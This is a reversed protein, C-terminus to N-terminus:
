VHTLVGEKFYQSPLRVLRHFCPPQGSRKHTSWTRCRCTPVSVGDEYMKGVEMSHQGAFTELFLGSPLGPPDGRSPVPLLAKNVLDQMSRVAGFPRQNNLLDMSARLKPDRLGDEPRLEHKNRLVSLLAVLLTSDKYNNTINSLWERAEDDLPRLAVMATRFQEIDFLPGMRRLKKMDLYRTNLRSFNLATSTNIEGLGASFTEVTAFAKEKGAKLSAQSQEDAADLSTPLYSFVVSCTLCIRNFKRLDGAVARVAEVHEMDDADLTAKTPKTAKAKKTKLGLQKETKQRKKAAKKADEERQAKAAKVNGPKATVAPFSYMVM